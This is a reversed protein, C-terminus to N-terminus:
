LDFALSIACWLLVLAMAINFSRYHKKLFVQLVGGAAAWTITGAIGIVTLMLAHILLVGLRADYPLVYGTYITIAYLIIKVNVFELLFGKTFSIRKSEGDDPKSLAVHVALYVIYAAGVYKLINAVSPAYKALEYCFLACIVMVCLFGVAIGLLVDKGRRWGKQSVAYLAVINNPGPTFATVLAYPLYSVIMSFLM